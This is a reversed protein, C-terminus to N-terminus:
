RLKLLTRVTNKIEDVNFPKKIYDDCGVDFGRRVDLESTKASIFVLPIKKLDSNEKLLKCLEFGNIWPLGIDLVILELPGEDLVQSLQTGDAAVLVRYGEAEFIRKLAQRMSEDDDIVLITKPDEKKKLSRFDSLSVVKERTIKDRTIKEIKDVLKKTNLSKGSGRSM